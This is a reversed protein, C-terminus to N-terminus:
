STTIKNQTIEQTYNTNYEIIQILLTVLMSWFVTYYIPFFLMNYKHIMNTCLYNAGSAIFMSGTTHTISISKYRNSISFLKIAIGHALANFPAISCAILLTSIYVIFISNNSIGTILAISGIITSIFSLQVIKIHSTKTSIYGTFLMTLGFFLVILFSHINNILSLNLLNIETNSFLIPLYTKVFIISIQYTVGVGGSIVIMMVFNIINNYKSHNKKVSNVSYTSPKKNLTKKLNIFDPTEELFNRYYLSIFALPMSLLFPIRWSYEINSFLSSNFFNTVGIGTLLGMVGTARTISSAFFRKKIGFHEMVYIAAGDYE